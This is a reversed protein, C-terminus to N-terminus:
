NNEWAIKQDRESPQKRNLQYLMGWTGSVSCLSLILLWMKITLVHSRYGKTLNDEQNCQLCVKTKLNTHLLYSFEYLGTLLKKELLLSITWRKGLINTPTITAILVFWFLMCHYEIFCHLLHKELNTKWLGSVATDQGSGDYLKTFCCPM